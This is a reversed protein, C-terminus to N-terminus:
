VFHIRGRPFGLEECWKSIDKMVQDTACVILKTVEDASNVIHHLLFNKDFYANTTPISLEKGKLRVTCDFLNMNYTRSLNHLKSIFDYGVFDSEEKFAGYYTFRAGPFIASYNQVPKVDSLRHTLNEEQFKLYIAKKLLLDFLDLYPLIGTGFGILVCHGSFTRSIDLGTGFPGDIKLNM